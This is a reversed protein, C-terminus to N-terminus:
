PSDPVPSFAWLVGSRLWEHFTRDWMRRDEMNLNLVKRQPVGEGAQHLAAIEAREGQPRYILRQPYVSLAQDSLMEERMEGTFVLIPQDGVQMEKWAAYKDNLPQWKSGAGHEGETRFQSHVHGLILRGIAEFPETMNQVEREAAEFARSVQAEGMIDFRVRVWSM